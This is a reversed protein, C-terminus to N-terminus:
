LKTERAKLFGTRLPIDDHSLQSDDEFRTGTASLAVDDLLDYISAVDREGTVVLPIWDGEEDLSIIL